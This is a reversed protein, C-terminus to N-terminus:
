FFIYSNYKYKQVNITQYKKNIFYKHIKYKYIKNIKLYTINNYLYIVLIIGYFLILNILIFLDINFKYYTLYLIFLNTKYIYLCMHYYNIYTILWNINLYSLNIKNLDSLYLSVNITVFIYIIKVIFIYINKYTKSNNKFIHMLYISFLLFIFLLNFDIVWLFGAFLDSNLYLLYLGCMLIYNAFLYLLTLYTKTKSILTILLLLYIFLLLDIM